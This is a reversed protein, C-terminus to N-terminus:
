CRWHAASKANRYALALGIITLVPFCVFSLVERTGSFRMGHPGNADGTLHGFLMFLLFALPLMGVIRAVPRLLAM